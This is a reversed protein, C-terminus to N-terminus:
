LRRIHFGGDVYIRQGTSYPFYGQVIAAVAKAVEASQGWRRIPALGEAFLADYKQKVPATMDTEIVGPCIEFVSIGDEALRTALLDTMMGMAAKAICYDARDISGAIGSISSVNVIMGDGTIGADICRAMEKAASQALFFPGKLNVAFVRDWSEETVDLLDRRGPSTIGANNVLVDLRGFTEITERVLRDRETASGVDAQTTMAEGGLARVAAAAEDAAAHNSAYNVVVAFKLRALEEAIARGIGRSAGTVIATPLSSPPMGLQPQSVDPCTRSVGM